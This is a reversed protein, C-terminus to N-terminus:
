STYDGLRVVHAGAKLALFGCALFFLLTLTARARKPADGHDGPVLSSLELGSETLASGLEQTTSQTTVRDDRGM